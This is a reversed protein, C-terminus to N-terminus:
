LWSMCGGSYVILDVSGLKFTKIIWVNLFRRLRSFLAKWKSSPPKSRKRRYLLDKLNLEFGLDRATNIIEDPKAGSLRYRLFHDHRRRFRFAKYERSRRASEPMSGQNVGSSNRRIAWYRKYVILSAVDPNGSNSFASLADYESCIVYFKFVISSQLSLPLWDHLQIVIQM